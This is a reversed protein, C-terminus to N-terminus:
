VIYLIGTGIKMHVVKIIRKKLIIAKRIHLYNHFLQLHIEKFFM